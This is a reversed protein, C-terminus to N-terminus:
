SWSAHPWSSKEGFYRMGSIHDRAIELIKRSRLLDGLARASPRRPQCLAEVSSRGGRSCGCVMARGGELRSSGGRLRRPSGVAPIEARAERRRSPVLAPRHCVPRWAATRMAAVAGRASGSCVWCAGACRWGDRGCAIAYVTDTSPSISTYISPRCCAQLRRSPSPPPSPPPPSPPPHSPPLSPPLRPPPPNPPPSPSPPPLSPPPSLVPIAAARAAARLGVTPHGATRHLVFGSWLITSPSARSL